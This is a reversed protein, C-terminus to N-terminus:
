RVRASRIHMSMRFKAVTRRAIDIEEKGLLEAITGDSLPKGAPEAEILEKIRHKVFESSHVRDSM